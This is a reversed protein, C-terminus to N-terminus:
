VRTSKRILSKGLTASEWVQIQDALWRYSYTAGDGLMFPHEDRETFTRLLWNLSPNM